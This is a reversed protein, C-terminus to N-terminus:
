QPLGSDPQRAAAEQNWMQQPNQQDDADGAGLMQEVMQCAEDPSHAQQPQGDSGAVTFTGDGNVTITITQEM